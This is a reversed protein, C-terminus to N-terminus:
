YFNPGYGNPTKATFQYIVILIFNFIQKSIHFRDNLHEDDWKNYVNNQQVKGVERNKNPQHPGVYRGSALIVADTSM